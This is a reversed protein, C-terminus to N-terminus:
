LQVGNNELMKKIDEIIYEPQQSHLVDWNQNIYDFIKTSKLTTYANQRNNEFLTVAIANIIFILFSTKNDIFKNM